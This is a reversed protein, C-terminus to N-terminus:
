RRSRPIPEEGRILPVVVGPESRPAVLKPIEIAVGAFVEARHKEKASYSDRNHISNDPRSNAQPPPLPHGEHFPSEKAASAARGCDRNPVITRRETPARRCGPRM